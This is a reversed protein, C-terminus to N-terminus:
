PRTRPKLIAEYKKPVVILGADALLANFARADGTVLTLVALRVASITNTERAQSAYTDLMAKTIKDGTRRSMAKAIEERSQGADEMTRAVAKSLRGALSYAQVEADDFRDVVPAPEYDRFLDVTFPDRRRAMLPEVESGVLARHCQREARLVAGPRPAPLRTFRQSFTEWPALLPEPEAGSLVTLAASFSIANGALVMQSAAIQQVEPAEALALLESQNQSLPHLEISRRVGAEISAIKLARYVGKQSLNM